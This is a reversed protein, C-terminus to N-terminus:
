FVMTVGPQNLRTDSIQNGSRYQPDVFKERSRITQNWRMEADDVNTNPTSNQIMLDATKSFADVIRTSSIQMGRSWRFLLCRKNPDISQGM